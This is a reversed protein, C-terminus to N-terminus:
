WCGHLAENRYQLDYWQHNQLYQYPSIGILFQMAVMTYAYYYYPSRSYKGQQCCSAGSIMKVMCIM